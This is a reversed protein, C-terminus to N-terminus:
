ERRQKPMMAYASSRTPPMSFSIAKNQGNVIDNM